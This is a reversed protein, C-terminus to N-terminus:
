MALMSRIKNSPAAIHIRWKAMESANAATGDVLRSTPFSDAPFMPCRLVACFTPVHVPHSCRALALFSVSSRYLRTCSFVDPNAIPTFRLWRTLVGPRRATSLSLSDLCYTLRAPLGHLSATCDRCTYALRASSRWSVSVEWSVPQPPSGSSVSPRSPSAAFLRRDANVGHRPLPAARVNLLLFRPCLDSGAARLGSIPPTRRPRRPQLSPHEQAAGPPSLHPRTPRSACASSTRRRLRLRLRGNSHQHPDLRVQPRKRVHERWPAELCVDDFGAAM